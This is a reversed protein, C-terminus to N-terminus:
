RTCLAFMAVVVGRLILFLMRLPHLRSFIAFEAVLMGQM